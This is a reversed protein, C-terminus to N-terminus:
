DKTRKVGFKVASLNKSLVGRYCVWHVKKGEGLSFRAEGTGPSIQLKLGTRSKCVSVYGTHVMQTHKLFPFIAAQCLPAVHHFIQRGPSRKKGFVRHSYLHWQNQQLPTNSLEVHNSVPSFCVYLYWSFCLSILVVLYVTFM